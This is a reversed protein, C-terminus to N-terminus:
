SVSVCVIVTVVKFHTADTLFMNYFIFHLKIDNTTHFVIRYYYIILFKMDHMLVYCSKM